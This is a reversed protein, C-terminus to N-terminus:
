AVLPNEWRLHRFRAFDTDCSVLTAGRSIALAALHADTSLKGVVNSETLVKKYVEWHDDTERIVQIMRHNIWHSVQDLCQDGHIPKSQLKPHTIIRIYGTLTHWCLGIVETGNLAKEWWALCQQHHSSERNTAYILVNVDVIKM